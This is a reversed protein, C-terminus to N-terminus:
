RHRRPPIPLTGESKEVLHLLALSRAPITVPANWAQGSLACLRTVERRIPDAPRAKIPLSLYACDEGVIRVRPDTHFVPFLPYRNSNQDSLPLRSLTYINCKVAMPLTTELLRRSSFSCHWGCKAVPSIFLTSVDIYDIGQYSVVGSLFFSLSRILITSERIPFLGVTFRCMNFAPIFRSLSLSDIYDIGQYSIVGSHISIYQFCTPLSLPLSDIYDIGQYSIVGSHISVYQFCTYLSLSLSDIYDIGQYSIVGSHISIYQFCTSLSLPLSDIYDIGQYSIVGSHIPM